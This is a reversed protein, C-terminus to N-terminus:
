LVSRKGLGCRSRFVGGNRIGLLNRILLWRSRPLNCRNRPSGRAEQMLKSNSAARVRRRRGCSLLLAANARMAQNADTLIPRFARREVAELGTLSRFPLWRGKTLAGAVGADDGGFCYWLSDARNSQGIGGDSSNEAQDRGRVLVTMRHQDDPVDENVGWEIRQV